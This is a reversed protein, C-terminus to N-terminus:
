REFMVNLGFRDVQRWGAATMWDIIPRAREGIAEIQAYGSNERFLDAGGRLADLEDGEIDIKVAIRSGRPLALTDLAVLPATAHAGPRDTVHVTGRNQPDPRSLGVQGGSASGVAARILESRAALDNRAIHAALASFNDPDPEFAMIRDALGRVGVICSYVGINAGVDILAAPRIRECARIFRVIDTHEYRGTAVDFGVEEVVDVDFQAGLYSCSITRAGLRRQVGRFARLPGMRLKWLLPSTARETTDFRM